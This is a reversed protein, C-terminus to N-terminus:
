LIQSLKNEAFLSLAEDVNGSQISYAKINAAKLAAAAKPGIQGTIVAEAGSDIVAQAAQIGAGQAQTVGPNPVVRKGGDVSDAICFHSCRGFHLDIKSHPDTNEISLAIKM